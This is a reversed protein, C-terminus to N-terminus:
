VVELVHWFFEWGLAKACAAGEEKRLRGELKVADVDSGEFIGNGM